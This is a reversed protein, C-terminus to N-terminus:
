MLIVTKTAPLFAASNGSSLDIKDTEENGRLCLLTMSRNVEWLLRVCNLSWRSILLIQSYRDYAMLRGRGM